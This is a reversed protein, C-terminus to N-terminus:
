LSGEWNQSRYDGCATGSLYLIQNNDCSVNKSVYM